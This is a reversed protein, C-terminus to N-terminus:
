NDYVPRITSLEEAFYCDELSSSQVNPDWVFNNRWYPTRPVKHQVKQWGEAVPRRLFNTLVLCITQALDKGKEIETKGDEDSLQFEERGDDEHFGVKRM